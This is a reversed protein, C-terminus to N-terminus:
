IKNKQCWKEVDKLTMERIRQIGEMLAIMYLISRSIRFGRKSKVHQKDLRHLEKEFEWKWDSPLVISIHTKHKKVSVYKPHNYSKNQLM